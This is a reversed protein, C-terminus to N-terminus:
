DSNMYQAYDDASAFLPLEKIARKRKNSKKNDQDSSSRKKSNPQEVDDSSEEASFAAFDAEEEDADDDEGSILAQVDLDDEDENDNDEQGVDAGEKEEEEEGGDIDSGLDLEVESEGEDDSMSFDEEDLDIDEDEEDEGEVDPRSKVLADWVEDENLEDDEEDDANSSKKKPDTKKIASQKTSFYQHFFKEDPKIDQTKKSLWNETNAPLENLVRDSAKVLLSGTHQGGLPQMISSGRATTKQKFNRYVFRDLFHALTYLGLDPKSLEEDSEEGVFAKAYSQVTPHFHQLFHTIEWLSSKDANAFKPDRKKPDYQRDKSFYKQKKESNEKKEEEGEEENDSEYTYDTPSNILLNKIQPVIKLLQLVLYLMGAVAGINSWHSCIQFIRKVFAEVRSVDKDFKLSKYLLNLYIGQKSSTVLRPDLLSEYLTKFYRDPNLTTKKSIVQFILSLAQISTNFNSSHTIKFLTDLREEYLESPLDSFPFARNLGTLIASFLKANKEEIIEQETKVVAKVSVGGKKGKKVNKKRKSTEYSKSTQLESTASNKHDLKDSNTNAFSSSHILFKEFLTFYVKILSNAIEQETKKLITQNLTLVAYYITHYGENKKLAVDVVNDIVIQKMNPHNNQLKLLQFSTKASVKNDIDGLKNVGLRLLNFEQEPSQTLFDFVHTLVTMRIHTIPDHSLKEMIELLQFFLKKLYDEFYWLALTKKNILMSLNQNKFFKLKRNPPLIGNNLFLDKIANLSQLISTRSKKNCYSVLIDMSKLNHLPSEQILLTLASIKDNLTGDNLIQSMFKRQSSNKTFENYYADNDKMLADKGREFLKHIQDQDLPENQQATAESDLPIEYWPVTTSLLLKDTVVLSTETIMGDKKEKKEKTASSLETTEEEVESEQNSVEAEEDEEPDEVEVDEEVDEKPLEEEVEVDEEVDEEVKEEEKTDPVDEVQFSSLGIQKMMSKLDNSLSNDKNNGENEVEDDGDFEQESKFDDEDNLSEVLKLDEETAGLELAEQKWSKKDTKSSTASSSSGNNNNVKRNVYDNPKQLTEATIAKTKKELRKQEEKALEERKANKKTKIKDQKKSNNVNEKSLKNAIKDKLSSLNLPSGSM